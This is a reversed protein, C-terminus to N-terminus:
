HVEMNKYFEKVEDAPEAMLKFIYNQCDNFCGNFIEEDGIVVWCGGADEMIFFPINNIIGKARITPIFTTM